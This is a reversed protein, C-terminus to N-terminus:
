TPLGLPPVDLRARKIAARAAQMRRIWAEQAKPSSQWDAVYGFRMFAARALVDIAEEFAFQDFVSQFCRTWYERTDADREWQSIRGSVLFAAKAGASILQARNVLPLAEYGDM